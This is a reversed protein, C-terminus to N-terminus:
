DCLCPILLRCQQVSHCRRPITGASPPPPPSCIFSAFLGNLHLGLGWRATTSTFSPSPDQLAEQLLLRAKHGAEFPLHLSTIRFHVPGQLAPHPRRLCAPELATTCSSLSQPKPPHGPSGKAGWPGYM